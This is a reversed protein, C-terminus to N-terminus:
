PTRGPRTRPAGLAGLAGLILWGLVGLIGGLLLAPPLLYALFAEVQAGTDLTTQTNSNIQTAIGWVMAVGILILILGGALMATAFPNRRTPSWTEESRPVEELPPDVTPETASQLNAAVPTEARAPTAVDRGARPKAPVTERPVLEPAPGSYGRQFVPDFRPDTM